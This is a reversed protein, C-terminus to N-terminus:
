TGDAYEQRGTNENTLQQPGPESTMNRFDAVRRHVVCPRASTVFTREGGNLFVRVYKNSATPDNGSWKLM